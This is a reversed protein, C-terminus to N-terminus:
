DCVAANKNNIVEQLSACKAELAMVFNWVSVGNEILRHSLLELIKM